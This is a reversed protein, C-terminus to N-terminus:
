GWSIKQSKPMRMRTLVFAKRSKTGNTYNLFTFFLWPSASSKNYMMILINSFFFLFFVSVTVLTEVVKERM